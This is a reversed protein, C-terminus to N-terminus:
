RLRRQAERSRPQRKRCPRRRQQLHLHNSSLHQRRSCRRSIKSRDPPQATAIPTAATIPTRRKARPPRPRATPPRQSHCAPQRAQSIPPSTRRCRPMAPPSPLQPPHRRPPQALRHTRPSPTKMRITTARRSRLPKSCHHPSSHRRSFRGRRFRHRSCLLHRRRLPRHSRRRPPPRHCMAQRKSPSQHRNVMAPLWLPPAPRNFQRRPCSRWRRRPWPPMPRYRCAM